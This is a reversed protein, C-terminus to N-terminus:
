RLIEHYLRDITERSLYVPNNKLRVPNVSDRLIAFDAEKPRVAPLGLSDVIREFAEVAEVCDTYGMVRAIDEFVVKLPLFGNPAANLNGYALMYKWLKPVCLAAAHGHAIGYLSTLKYCMAHGATTQSINIAKGAIHAAWLMREHGEQTGQLYGDMNALISAIAQRSYEMSTEDAHISWFSEIGHCLADLMTAKKQYSPLTELVSADMLVLQPIASQDAISQKEGKRYIVAYRTAESGTGATTPMAFFPISNPEIQEALYDCDPEMYCFLKICKAVDMASGGGIALIAESESERFARVGEVVSEYDPNSQFHDFRVLSLVASQEMEELWHSVRLFRYAQDCVLFVRHIQNRTLYDLFEQYSEQIQIVTQTM